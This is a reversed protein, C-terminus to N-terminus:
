NESYKWIGEVLPTRYLRPVEREGWAPPGPNLERHRGLCVPPCSNWSGAILPWLSPHQGYFGCVINEYEKWLIVHGSWLRYGQKLTEINWGIGIMQSSSGHTKTMGPPMLAIELLDPVPGPSASKKGNIMNITQSPCIARQCGDKLDRSEGRKKQPFFWGQFNQQVTKKRSPPAQNSTNQKYSWIRDFALDSALLTRALGKVEFIM